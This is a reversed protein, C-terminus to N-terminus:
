RSSSILTCQGDRAVAYIVPFEIQEENADLDIFLDYVENLVEQPRADQRDIKNIVVIAPLGLRAGELARFADASAAGRRRGRPAHHRRGDPAHARGRRRLRRPRAHRRHQDQLRTPRPYRVATNKAMITIGKERELDMSDM